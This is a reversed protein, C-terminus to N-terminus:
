AYTLTPLALTERVLRQYAAEVARARAEATMRGGLGSLEQEAERRLTVSEEAALDTLAAHMLQRDLEDLRDIATTRAQGRVNAAEAGIRDLEVLLQEVAQEFAASRATRRATLRAVVRELHSALSPKRPASEQRENMGHVIGVARRWEDFATLVDAECFEVRVPRRRGGKAAQRDCYRDVGRCAVNFPVGQQAWGCVLEFAPGVIRVLHGGNKQCLYAELQRCYDGYDNV